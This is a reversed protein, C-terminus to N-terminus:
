LKRADVLLSTYALAGDRGREDFKSSRRVKGDAPDWDSSHFTETEDYYELLDVTFGALELVESLSRYNYLVKHDQAGFGTGGPRVAEVYAPDSHYGDPVAVRLYGGRTLYRFCNRAAAVGQERTLHEWVHEALIADVTGEAFYMAWDDPNLIDLVNVDTPIWGPSDVGGAGVVIRLPRRAACTRMLRGRDLPSRLRRYLSRAKGRWSLFVLYPPLLVRKLAEKASM